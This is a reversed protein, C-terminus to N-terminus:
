SHMTRVRNKPINVSQSVRAEERVAWISTSRAKWSSQVAGLIQWADVYVHEWEWRAASLHESCAGIVIAVALQWLVIAMVLHWEFVM